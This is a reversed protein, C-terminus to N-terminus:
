VLKQRIQLSRFTKKKFIHKPTLSSIYKLIESEQESNDRISHDLHYITPFHSILNKNHLWLFFQLLLSSDKGGSFSIVAPKSKMFDQYNKLRSWASQFISELTENM